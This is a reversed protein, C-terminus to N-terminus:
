RICFKDATRTQTTPKLNRLTNESGSGSQVQGDVAEEDSAFKILQEKKPELSIIEYHIRLAQVQSYRVTWQRRM